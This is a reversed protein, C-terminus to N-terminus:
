TGSSRKEAPGMLIALWKSSPHEACFTVIAIAIPVGIFAGFLGWLFTWFFVSFLVLFPSIALASGAVRPEIYSGIVFQIINLCAFVLLASQWTDFQALAYLTPFVTAVFPGIFPIYNLTFAIVGWEKALQLGSASALAWVMFGTSLSMVTRILMYRRFKSAITTSASLMVRAAERDKLEILKRKFDDVELLGLIVYVVVVLWFTTATNIRAAIAQTARLLWASNFHEAWMGDVAIGYGEIWAAAQDYLSQFRASEALLARAIRGFGWSVLSAFICFVVVTVSIVIALALLNPLYAKLRSQLPWVLAIIFIAGVVPAILSTAFNLAVLVAIIAVISIMTRTWSDTM